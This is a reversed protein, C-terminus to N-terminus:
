EPAAPRPLVEDVWDTWNELSASRPIIVRPVGLMSRTRTGVTPLYVDLTQIYDTDRFNDCGPQNRAEDADAYMINPTLVQYARWDTEPHDWCVVFTPHVGGWWREFPSSPPPPNIAMLVNEFYVNEPNQIEAATKAVRVPKSVVVSATNFVAQESVVVSLPREDGGIVIREQTAILLLAVGTFEYDDLFRDERPLADVRYGCSLSLQNPTAEIEGFLPCGGAFDDLDPSDGASFWGGVWSWRHAPANAFPTKNYPKLKQFPPMTQAQATPISEVDTGRVTFCFFERYICGSPCDGWGHWFIVYWTEGQKFAIIHASSGLSPNGGVERVGEVMSYAESAVRLNLRPDFYLSLGWSTWRVAQVGLKANLADFEANGTEFRIQGQKDQLLEKLINDFDREPYIALTGPMAGEAADIANMLPYASRILSLVGEIENILQNRQAIDFFFDDTERKLIIDALIEADSRDPVPPVSDLITVVPPEAAEDILVEDEESDGCVNISFGMLLIFISILRLRLTNHRPTHM